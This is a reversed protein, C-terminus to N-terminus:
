RRRFRRLGFGLSSIGTGFLVLSGPEPVPADPLYAILEQPGDSGLDQPTFIVINRPHINALNHPNLAEAYYTAAHATYGATHSVDQFLNWLAFNLDGVEQADNNGQMQTILWAAAEYNRAALAGLFTGAPAGFKADQLDSMTNIEGEWTEGISLHNFYSDCATFYIGNPLTTSGSVTIVYPYVLVGADAPGGSNLTFSATSGAFASAACFLTAFLLSLTSRKVNM